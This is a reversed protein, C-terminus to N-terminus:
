GAQNRTILMAMAGSMIGKAAEALDNTNVPLRDILEGNFYMSVMTGRSGGEAIVEVGRQKIIFKM